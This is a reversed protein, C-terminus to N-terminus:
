EAGGRGRRRRLGLLAAGALVLVGTSPEPVGGYVLSVAGNGGAWMKNSPSFVPTLAYDDGDESVFLAVFTYIFSVNDTTAKGAMMTDDIAKSDFFWDNQLAYSELFTGDEISDMISVIDDESQVFHGLYDRGQIMIIYVMGVHFNLHGTITAGPPDDPPTIKWTISAAQTNLALGALAALSAIHKKMHTRGKQQSDEVIRATSM